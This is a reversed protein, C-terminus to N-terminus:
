GSNEEVDLVLCPISLCSIAKSRAVEYNFSIECFEFEKSTTERCDFSNKMSFEQYVGENRSTRGELRSTELSSVGGM